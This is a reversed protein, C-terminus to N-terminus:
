SRSRQSAPRTPASARALLLDLLAEFAQQFPALRRAILEGRSYAEAAQRDDPLRALVPIDHAACFALTEDDTDASRNIVVGCPIALMRLMEAALRLDHLGFPTPETVLVTFDCGRLSEVVPCSTGPPADILTLDELPARQKVARILPPSKAEGINLCGSAFGM